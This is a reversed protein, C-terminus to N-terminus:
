SRPASAELWSVFGTFADESFALTASGEGARCEVIIATAPLSSQEDAAPSRHTLVTLESRDLVRTPRNGIGIARYWRFEGGVYRAIGYIWRNGRVRIAVALGGGVRMMYRQRALVAALMVIILVVVFGAIVDVAHV